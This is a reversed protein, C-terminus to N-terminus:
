KFLEMLLALASKTDAEVVGPPDSNQYSRVLGFAYNGSRDPVSDQPRWPPIPQTVPDFSQFWGPTTDGIGDPYRFVGPGGNAGDMQRYALDPSIMLGVGQCVAIALVLDAETGWNSNFNRLCFPSYGEGAGQTVPPLQIADFSKALDKAKTTLLTYLDPQPHAAFVPGNPGYVISGDSHYTFSRTWAILGIV